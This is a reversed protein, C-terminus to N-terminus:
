CPRLTIVHSQVAGCLREARVRGTSYYGNTDFRPGACAALLLALGALLLARNM